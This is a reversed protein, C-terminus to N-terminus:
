NVLRRASRKRCAETCWRTQRGTLPKGCDDCLRPHYEITPEDPTPDDTDLLPNSEKGIRLLRTATIHHHQLLGRTWPHCRDGDPGLMKPDTHTRYGDFYDRITEAAITDDSLEYPDDLRL